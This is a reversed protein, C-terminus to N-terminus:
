PPPTLLRRSSPQRNRPPQHSPLSRTSATPLRDTMECRRMNARSDTKLEVQTAQKGGQKTEEGTM